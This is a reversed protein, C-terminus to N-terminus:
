STPGYQLWEVFGGAPHAKIHIHEFEEFSSYISISNHPERWEVVVRGSPFLIGWLVYGVGSVGTEDKVRCLRFRRFTTELEERKAKSTAIAREVTKELHAVAEEREEPTLKEANFKAELLDAMRDAFDDITMDRENEKRLLAEINERGRDSLMAVGVAAGRRFARLARRVNTQQLANKEAEYSRLADLQGANLDSLPRQDCTPEDHVERCVPCWVGVIEGDKGEFRIAEERRRPLHDDLSM